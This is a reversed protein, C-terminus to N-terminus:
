RTPKDGLKEGACDPCLRAIGDYWADYRRRAAAKDEADDTPRPKAAENLEAKARDKQVQGNKMSKVLKDYEEQATLAGEHGQEAVVRDAKENALWARWTGFPFGTWASVVLLIFILLAALGAAKVMAVDIKPM